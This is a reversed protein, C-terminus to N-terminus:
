QAEHRQRRSAFAFSRADTSTSGLVIVDPLLAVVSVKVTAMAVGSGPGAM